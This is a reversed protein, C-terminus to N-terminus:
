SRIANLAEYKNSSTHIGNDQSATFGGVNFTTFSFDYTATLHEDEALSSEYGKKVLVTGDTLSIKDSAASFSVKVGVFIASVIAFAIIIFAVNPKKVNLFRKM